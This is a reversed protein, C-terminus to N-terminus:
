LGRKKRFYAVGAPLDLDLMAENSQFPTFPAMQPIQGAPTTTAKENNPVPIAMMDPGTNRLEVERAEEDLDEAPSNGSKIDKVWEPYPNSSVPANTGGWGMRNGAPTPDPGIYTGAPTPDPGAYTGAPTPDPGKYTSTPVNWWGTNTTSVPLPDPGKYTGAAVPAPGTYTGAPVPPQNYGQVEPITAKAGQNNFDPSSIQRILSQLEQPSLARILELLKEM